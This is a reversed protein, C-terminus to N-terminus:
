LDACHGAPLTFLIMPAVQALGVFGLALASGTREYIEWGLATVFMFQGIIAILRGSLYLRFDLNRLVAYPDHQPAPPTEPEAMDNTSFTAYNVPLDLRSAGPARVAKDARVRCHM